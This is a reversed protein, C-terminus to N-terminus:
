MRLMLVVRVDVAGVAAMRGYPVAVMHVIKVIAMKMMRMVVMDVLVDNFYRIHVRFVTRRDVLTAELVFGAVNVTRTAPMLRHRMSVMDAIQHVTTQMMLMVAMAIIVTDQLNDASVNTALAARLISQMKNHCAGAPAEKDRRPAKVM